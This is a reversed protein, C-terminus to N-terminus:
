LGLAERVAAITDPLPRPNVNTLRAHALRLANDKVIVAKRLKSLEPVTGVGDEIILMRGMLLREVIASASDNEAITLSDLRNAAMTDLELVIRKKAM